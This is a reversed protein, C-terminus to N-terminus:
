CCNRRYQATKHLSPDEVMIRNLINHLFDQQGNMFGAMGIIGIFREFAPHVANGAVFHNIVQAFHGAM